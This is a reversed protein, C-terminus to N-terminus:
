ARALTGVYSMAMMWGSAMGREGEAIFDPIMGAYPGGWWNAGFQLGLWCLMFLALSDGSGFLAMAALFILNIMGGSILYVSRRGLRSSSRDSLAGAIPTVLLAVLAGLPLIIGVNHVKNVEGDILAIQSPMIILLAGWEFNFVLWPLSLLLQRRAGAFQGHRAQSRGKWGATIRDHHPDGSNM